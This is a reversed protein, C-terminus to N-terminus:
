RKMRREKVENALSRAMGADSISGDNNRNPANDYSRALKLKKVDSNAKNIIGPAKAMQVLGKTNQKVRNVFSPKKTAEMRINKMKKEYTDKRM